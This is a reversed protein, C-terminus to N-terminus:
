VAKGFGTYEQQLQVVIGVMDKGGTWPFANDNKNSINSGHSVKCRCVSPSVVTHCVAAFDYHILVSLSLSGYYKKIFIQLWYIHYIPWFGTRQTTFQVIITVNFGHPNPSDVGGYTENIWILKRQSFKKLVKTKKKWIVWMLLFLHPSPLSLLFRGKFDIKFYIECFLIKFVVAVQMNPKKDWKENCKQSRSLIFIAWQLTRIWNKPFAMLGM